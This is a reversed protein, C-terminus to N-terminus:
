MVFVVVRAGAPRPVAAAGAACPRVLRPFLHIRVVKPPNKESFAEKCVKCTPVPAAAMSSTTQDSFRSTQIAVRIKVILQKGVLITVPLNFLVVLLEAAM